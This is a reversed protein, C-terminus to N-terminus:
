RKKRAKTPLEVGEAAAMKRIAVRLVDTRTSIGTKAQIEEILALDEPQFRIAVQISTLAM